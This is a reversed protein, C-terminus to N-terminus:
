CYRVTTSFFRSSLTCSSSAWVVVHMSRSPFWCPSTQGNLIACCALMSLNAMTM